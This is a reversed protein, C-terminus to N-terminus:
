TYKEQHKIIADNLNEPMSKIHDVTKEIDGNYSNLIKKAYDYSANTKQRVLRIKNLFM